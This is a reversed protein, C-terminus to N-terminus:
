FGTPTKRYGYYRGNIDLGSGPARRVLDVHNRIRVLPLGIANITVFHTMKEIIAPDVNNRFLEFAAKYVDMSGPEIDTM